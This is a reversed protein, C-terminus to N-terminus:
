VSEETFPKRYHYSEGPLLLHIRLGPHHRYAYDTLYAPNEDNHPFLGIHMPLLLSCGIDACLDAAERYNMNGQIGSRTRVYDRGNIPLLALDVGFPRVQEALEPFGVTDGSHFWRLPGSEFVYGLYLPHGDTDTDMEEHKVAIPHVRVGDLELPVGPDAPILREEPLGYSLALPVHARPLVFRTRADRRAMPLLTAPDLHDDHHHTVFVYGAGECDAPDLIPPYARRWPDGASEFIADSLYPDILLL